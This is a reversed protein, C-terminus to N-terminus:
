CLNYLLTHYMMNLSNSGPMYQPDAAIYIVMIILEVCPPNLYGELLLFYIFFPLDFNYDM